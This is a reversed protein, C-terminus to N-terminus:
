REAATPRPSGRPFPAGRASLLARSNPGAGVPAVDGHASLRLTLAAAVTIFLARAYNRPRPLGLVCPRLGGRAQPLGRFSRVVVCVVALRVRLSAFGSWLSPPTM